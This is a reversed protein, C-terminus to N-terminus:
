HYAAGDALQDDAHLSICVSVSMHLWTPVHDMRPANIIAWLVSLLRLLGHCASTYDPGHARLASQTAPFHNHLKRPPDSTPHQHQNGYSREASSAALSSSQAEINLEIRLMPM